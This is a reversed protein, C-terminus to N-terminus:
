TGEPRQDTGSRRVSARYHAPDEGTLAKFARSFYSRSSIGVQGAVSKIPLDTTRLLEAARRLRIERLLDMATRGFAQRFHSAFSARSMGSLEALSDLSHPREPHALLASIARSLRPHELAALWPVRCEGSECQRRLLVILCTKMLAEALSRTGPKPAALESLLRKFPDRFDPDDAVSEILPAPLYDFLGATQCHMARVAGCALLLGPAGDGAVSWEWGGPLPRCRPSPQDAAGWDDAGVLLRVGPPAIIVAHPALEQAAGGAQRAYGHGALVYHVSAAEADEVVLSADQRVECIAFPAVGVNLGELLKDLLMADLGTGPM